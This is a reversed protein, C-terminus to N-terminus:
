KKKKSSPSKHATHLRQQLWNLQVNKVQLKLTKTVCGSGRQVLSVCETPLLTNAVMPNNKGLILHSHSQGNM